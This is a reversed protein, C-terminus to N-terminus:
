INLICYVDCIYIHRWYIYLEGNNHIYPEVIIHILNTEGHVKGHNYTVKYTRCIIYKYIQIHNTERHSTGHNYTVNCTRCIICIEFTNDGDYM